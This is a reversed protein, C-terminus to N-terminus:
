EKKWTMKPPLSTLNKPPSLNSIRSPLHIDEATLQTSQYQPCKNKRCQYLHRHRRCLSAVRMSRLWLADASMLLMATQITTTNKITKAITRKKATM